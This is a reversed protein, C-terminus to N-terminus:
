KIYFRYKDNYQQECFPWDWILDDEKNIDQQLIQPFKKITANIIKKMYEESNISKTNRKEQGVKELSIRHEEQCYEHQVNSITNYIDKITIITYDNIIKNLEKIDAQFLM